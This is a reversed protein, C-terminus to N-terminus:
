PEPYGTYLSIRRLTGHLEITERSRIVLLGPLPEGQFFELCAARDPDAVLLACNKPRRRSFLDAQHPREPREYFIDSGIIIDTDPPLQDKRWDFAHGTCRDGLGNDRANDLAFEVADPLLDFFEVRKAGLAAAAIGPLGLGAGLEVVVKDRVLEPKKHLRQALGIAAPWLDAWYPIHREEGKEAILDELLAMSDSVKLRYTAGQVAITQVTTPIM